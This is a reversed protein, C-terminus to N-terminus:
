KKERNGEKGEVIFKGRKRRRKKVKEKEEEREREKEIVKDVQRLSYCKIECKNSVNKVDRTRGDKFNSLEKRKISWTVRNRSM